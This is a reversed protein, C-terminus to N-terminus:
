GSGDLLPHTAIIFAIDIFTFCVVKMREYLFSAIEQKKYLM